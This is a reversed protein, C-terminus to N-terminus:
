SPTVGARLTQWLLEFDEPLPARAVIARGTVPHLFRRHGARLRVRKLVAAMCGRLYRALYRPQNAPPQTFGAENGRRSGSNPLNSQM